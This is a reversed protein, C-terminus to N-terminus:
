HKIAFRLHTPHHSTALRKTFLREDHHISPKFNIRKNEHSKSTFGTNKKRKHIKPAKGQFKPNM